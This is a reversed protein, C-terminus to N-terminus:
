GDSASADRRGQARGYTETMVALKRMIEGTLQGPRLRWRWNGTDSGPRNM